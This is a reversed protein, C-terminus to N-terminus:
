RVDCMKVQDWLLSLSLGIENATMPKGYDPHDKPHDLVYECEDNLEIDGKGLYLCYGYDYEDTKKDDIESRHRWYPCGGIVKFKGKNEELREYCYEGKPILTKDMVKGKHENMEKEDEKMKNLEKAKWRIAWGRKHPKCMACTSKTKNKYLKRM